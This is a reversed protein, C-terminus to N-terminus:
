ECRLATLPDTRTAGRAPFYSAAAGVALLVSAVVGMTLPDAFSVGFLLGSLIRGMALAGVFGAALGIVVPALGQRLILGRLSSSTAGLAIRIGMENRRQALSYSVVGYIGLCALVLPVPARVYGPLLQFRREAVSASVIQEMTQFEPVPMESDLSQIIGRVVGSISAPDMATRIALSMDRQSSLQYVTMNAAKQLGTSRVDGVVGIVELLPQEDGGM